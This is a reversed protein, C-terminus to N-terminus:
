VEQEKRRKGIRRGLRKVDFLFKEKSQLNKKSPQHKPAGGQNM